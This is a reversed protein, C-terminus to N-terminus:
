SANGPAKVPEKETVAVSRIRIEKLPKFFPRSSQQTTPQKSVERLIEIGDVVQGLVTAQGTWAPEPRLVIVFQSGNAPPSPSVPKMIVSGAVVPVSSLEAAYRFPPAGSGDGAADGGEVLQDPVLKHITLGDYFGANAMDIFAKVALPATTPLFDIAFSGGDLTIRAQYVKAADYKPIMRVIIEDSAVGDASWRIAYKGPELLQPYIRTVDVIAYYGVGPALRDPRVPEGSGASGKPALTRGDAAKVEFGKLLPSKVPNAVAEVGDNGISLKLEFPDGAYFFQRGKAELSARVGAPPPAAAHVAPGSVLLTALALGRALLLWSTTKQM